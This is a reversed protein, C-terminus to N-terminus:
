WPIPLRAREMPKWMGEQLREQIHDVFYKHCKCCYLVSLYGAFLAVCLKNNDYYKQPKANQLDLYM